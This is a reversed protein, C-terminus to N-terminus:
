QTKALVTMVLHVLRCESVRHHLSPPLSPPHSPPLSPPHLWVDTHQVVGGKRGGKATTCPWGRGWEVTARQGRVSRLELQISM